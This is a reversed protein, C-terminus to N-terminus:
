SSVSQKVHIAVKTHHSLKSVMYVISMKSFNFVPMYGLCSLCKIGFISMHGLRCHWLSLSPQEAVCRVYDKISNVHLTYLTGFKTGRTVVLSGKSIKWSNDGYICTYGEGDLQRTLTLSKTLEPVHCVDKLVFM